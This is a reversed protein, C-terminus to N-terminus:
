GALAVGDSDFVKVHVPIAARVSQTVVCFDEFQALARELMKLAGAAVGLRIEVDISGVRLRNQENRVLKADAVARMPFPENKFKRLAFVLSSSLCNAVAALLLQEADPGAGAGLPPTADTVLLPAGPHRFDVEFRYDAQWTLETTFTADTM